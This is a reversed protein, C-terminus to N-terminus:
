GGMALGIVILVIMLGLIISNWIVAGWLAPPNRLNREYAGVGLGAGILSPLIVIFMLIVGMAEANGVLNLIGTLLLAMGFTAFAALFYSGILFNRRRPMLRTDPEVACRPCLHINGPLQFDCTVCIGAGCSKCRYSAPVEPHQACWAGRAAAPTPPAIVPPAAIAAVPPVERGPAQRAFLIQYQGGHVSCQVTQADVVVLQGLCEPCIMAM